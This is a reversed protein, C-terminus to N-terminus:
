TYWGGNVRLVQGTIYASEQDCLFSVAHAIEEPFGMRGLPIQEIIEKTEEESFSANMRTDILGPSVANVTIGSPALEKALSKTLAILGGKVMSYLTECAAGTEGWISTIFIIRGWRNQIMRPLFHQTLRFPSTLHLQLMHQYEEQTIETFLGYQSLGANHILIDPFLCVQELIREVGQPMSLDAQCLYVPVQYTNAIQNQLRLAQEYNAHYHLLLTYGKSALRFAMAQGIGGSAGTILAVKSM